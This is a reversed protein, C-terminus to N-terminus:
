SPPQNLLHYTPSHPNLSVMSGLEMNSQRVEDGIGVTIQGRCVVEDDTEGGVSVRCGFLAQEGLSVDKLLKVRGLLGELKDDNQREV